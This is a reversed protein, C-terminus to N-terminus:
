LGLKSLISKLRSQQPYVAPRAYFPGFFPGHYGFSNSHYDPAPRVLGSTDSAPRVLGSFDPAPRVLGSSDPAPRVLGSFDPAPRVLGSSDPAPRVLGSSDPAPRVLGSSDTAPRVLGRFDPAPRVLGSSDPAPRVLGSSDPAARVLGSSDPAPRVLGTDSTAPRAVGRNYSTTPLISGAPTGNDKPKPYSYGSSPADPEPYSYGSSQAAAAAPCATNPVYQIQTSTIYRPQYQTAISTVTQLIPNTRTVTIYQVETVRSTVVQVPGRVTVYSTQHQVRTSTVRQVVTTPVVVQSYVLSTSVVVDRSTVVLTQAQCSGQQTQPITEERPVDYLGTVCSICCCNCLFM